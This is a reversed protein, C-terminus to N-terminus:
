WRRTIYGLASTPERHSMHTGVSPQVVFRTGLDSPVHEHVVFRTVMNPISAGTVLLRSALDLVVRSTVTFRTVLNRYSRSTVVVRSVMDGYNTALIGLRTKIDRLSRATTTFRTAILSYTRSTVTIRTLLESYQRATTVFRSKVDAVAPAHIVIRTKTDSVAPTSVLAKYTGIGGTWPVSNNATLNYSEVQTGTASVIKTSLVIPMNTTNTQSTKITYGNNSSFTENGSGGQTMGAVCIEDNQTTAATTGTVHPNTAASAVANSAGKDFPATPDAGSIEAVAVSPFGTGGAHFTVTHSAGGTISKSYRQTLRGAGSAGATAVGTAWTNTKSDTVSQTGSTLNDVGNVVLLNGSTSTFTPSVVTSQNSAQASVAQVVALAM